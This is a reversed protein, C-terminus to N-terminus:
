GTFANIVIALRHIAAIQEPSMSGSIRGRIEEGLETTAINTVYEAIEFAAREVDTFYDTTERWAPLVALRDAAKVSAHHLEKLAKHGTPQTKGIYVHHVTAGTPHCNTIRGRSRRGSCAYVFQHAGGV